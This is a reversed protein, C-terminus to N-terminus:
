MNLYLLVDTLFSHGYNTVSDRLNEELIELDVTLEFIKVQRPLEEM